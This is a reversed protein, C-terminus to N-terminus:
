TSKPGVRDFHWTEFTNVDRKSVTNKWWFMWKVARRGSFVPVAYLVPFAYHRLIRTQTDTSLFYVVSTIPHGFAVNWKPKWMALITQFKIALLGKCSESDVNYCALPLCMVSLSRGLKAITWLLKLGNLCSCQFYYSYIHLYKNLSNKLKAKLQLSM